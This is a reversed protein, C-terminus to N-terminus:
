FVVITSFFCLGLFDGDFNRGGVRFVASIVDSDRTENEVLGNGDSLDTIQGECLGPCSTVDLPVRDTIRKKKQSSFERFHIASSKMVIIGVDDEIETIKPVEMDVEEVITTLRLMEETIEKTNM